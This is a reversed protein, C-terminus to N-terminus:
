SLTQHHTPIMESLRILSQKCHSPTAQPGGGRGAGQPPPSDWPFTCRTEIPLFIIQFPSVALKEISQHDIKNGVSPQFDRFCPTLAALKHPELVVLDVDKVDHVLGAHTACTDKRGHASGGKRSKLPLSESRALKSPGHPLDLDFGSFYKQPM